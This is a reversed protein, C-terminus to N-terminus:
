DLLRIKSLSNIIDSATLGSKSLNL